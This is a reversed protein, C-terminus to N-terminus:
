GASWALQWYPIKLRDTVTQKRILGKQLILVESSDLILDRDDLM